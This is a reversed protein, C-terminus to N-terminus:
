RSWCTWGWNKECHRFVFFYGSCSCLEQDLIFGVVPAHLPPSELFASPASSFRLSLRIKLVPQAPTDFEITEFSVWQSKWYVLIRLQGIAVVLLLVPPCALLLHTSPPKGTTNRPLRSTASVDRYCELGALQHFKYISVNRWHQCLCPFSLRVSEFFTQFCHAARTRNCTYMDVSCSQL